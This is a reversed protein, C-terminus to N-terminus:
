AAEFSKEGFGPTFTGFVPTYARNIIRRDQLDDSIGTQEGELSGASEKSARNSSVCKSACGGM